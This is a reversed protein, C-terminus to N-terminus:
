KWMMQLKKMEELTATDRERVQFAMKPIFADLYHLLAVRPAPMIDAPMSHYVKNFRASFYKITEGPQIKLNGYEEIILFVNEMILCRGLFVQMFQHFFRMNAAPLNEFWNKVKAQVLLSNSLHDEDHM